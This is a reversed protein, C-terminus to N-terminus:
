ENKTQWEQLRNIADQLALVHKSIEKAFVPNFTKAIVKLNDPMNKLARLLCKRLEESSKATLGRTLLYKNPIDTWLNLCNELNDFEYNADEFAVSFESEEADAYLLVGNKCKIQKAAATEVKQANVQHLRVLAKTFPSM